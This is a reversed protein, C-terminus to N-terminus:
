RPAKPEGPGYGSGPPGYMRAPLNVPPGVNKVPRKNVSRVGAGPQEQPTVYEISGGMAEVIKRIERLQEEKDYGIFLMRRGLLANAMREESYSKTIEPFIELLKEIIQGALEPSVASLAAMMPNDGEDFAALLVDKPIRDSQEWYIVNDARLVKSNLATKPGTACGALLPVMALLVWLKRM